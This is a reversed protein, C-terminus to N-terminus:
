AADRWELDPFWEDAPPEPDFQAVDFLRPNKKRKMWWDIQYLGHYGYWGWILMPWSAYRVSAVPWGLGRAWAMAAVHLGLMPLLVPFGVIATVAVLRRRRAAIRRQRAVSMVSSAGSALSSGPQPGSEMEADSARLTPGDSM